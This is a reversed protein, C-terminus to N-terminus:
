TLQELARQIQHLLDPITGDMPFTFKVSQNGRSVTIQYDWPFGHRQTYSLTFQSIKRINLPGMM